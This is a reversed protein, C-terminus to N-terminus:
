RLEKWKLRRSHPPADYIRRKAGPYMWATLGWHEVHAVFLENGSVRRLERMVPRVDDVYELVCSVFIVASANPMKPLVEEVARGVQVKCTACGQLDICLDGCEYDTGIWRNIVGATPSGVVILPRGLEKARAQARLFLNKRQTRRPGLSM